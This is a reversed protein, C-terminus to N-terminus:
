FFMGAPLMVNMVMTFLAYVSGTTLLAFIGARVYNIKRGRGLLKVLVVLLIPTSILYGIVGLLFVYVAFSLLILAVTKWGEKDCFPKSETRSTLFKGISCIILMSSAFIPFIKPGIDESSVGFLPKIKSTQWIWFLGFAILGLSIWRNKNMRM